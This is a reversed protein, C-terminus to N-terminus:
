EIRIVKTENKTEKLGLKELKIALSDRTTNSELKTKIEINDRSIEDISKQKAVIEDELGKNYYNKALALILLFFVFFIFALNGIIFEFTLFDGNLIMSLASRKRPQVGRDKTQGNDDVEKSDNYTVFENDSM